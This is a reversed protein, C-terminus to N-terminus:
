AKPPPTLSASLLPVIGRDPTRCPERHSPLASVSIVAHDIPAVHAAACEGTDHCGGLSEVDDWVDGATQHTQHTTNGAHDTVHCTVPKAYPLLLVGTVFVASFARLVGLSRM